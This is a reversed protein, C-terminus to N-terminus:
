DQIIRHLSGEIEYGRQGVRDSVGKLFHENNLITDLSMDAIKTIVPAAEEQEEETEVEQEVEVEVEEAQAATKEVEVEGIINRLSSLFRDEPTYM